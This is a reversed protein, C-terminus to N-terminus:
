LGLRVRVLREIEGPTEPLSVDFWRADRESRFFTEQRKAYQQTLRIVESLTANADAGSVLAGAVVDYGLSAMALADARIGRALLARVEEVWGRAYMERTRAAIRERLAARPLSLVL